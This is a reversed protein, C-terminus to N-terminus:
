IEGYTNRIITLMEIGLIKEINLLCKSTKEKNFTNYYESVEDYIEEIGDMRIYQEVCEDRQNKHYNQSSMFVNYRSTNHHKDFILNIRVHYLSDDSCILTYDVGDKSIECKNQIAHQIILKFRIKEDEGMVICNYVGMDESPEIPYSNYHKRIRLKRIQNKSNKM